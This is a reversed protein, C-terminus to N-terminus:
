NLLAKNTKYLTYEIIRQYKNRLLGNRKPIIIGRQLINDPYGYYKPLLIETLEIGLKSKRSVNLNYESFSKFAGVVIDSFQLLSSSTMKAFFVSEDFGYGSLPGSHYIIRDKTLGYHYGNFYENIIPHSNNGEPWDSIVKFGIIQENKAILGCRMLGNAFIWSNIESKIKKHNEQQFNEALSIIIRFDVENVAREIIETRWYDSSKCFKNYVGLAKKNEYHKRLGKFNWKIPLKENGHKRKVQKVIENLKKEEESNIIIGGYAFVNSNSLDKDTRFDSDDIYWTHM